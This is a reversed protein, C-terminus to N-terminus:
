PNYNDYPSSSFRFLEFFTALTISRTLRHLGFALFHFDLSIIVHKMDSRTTLGTEVLSVGGTVVSVTVFTLAYIM